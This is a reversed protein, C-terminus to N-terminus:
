GASLGNEEFFAAKATRIGKAIVLIGGTLEQDKLIRM